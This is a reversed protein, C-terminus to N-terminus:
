AISTRVFTLRISNRCTEIDCPEEDKEWLWGYGQHALGLRVEGDDRKVDARVNATRLPNRLRSPSTYLPTSSIEHM